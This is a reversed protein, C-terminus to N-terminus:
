LAAYWARTSHTLPTPACRRADACDPRSAAPQRSPRSAPLARARLRREPASAGRRPRPRAPSRGAARDRRLAPESAGSTPPPRRPERRRRAPGLATPSSARRRRPPRRCSGRASRSRSRRSASRSGATSSGRALERAAGAADDHATIPRACRRARRRSSSSEGDRLGPAVAVRLDGPSPRSGSRDTRGRVSSVREIDAALEQMPRTAISPSRRSARLHHGRARRARARQASVQSPPMPQVFMHQTLVGMYTDAEFPVRGTFMEYMIVGLAYIDARHDVPQGSAQEPSMYHPTGFVIGAKTVRSAGVIM